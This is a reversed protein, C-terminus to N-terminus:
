AILSLVHWPVLLECSPCMGYAVLIGNNFGIMDDLDDNQNLLLDRYLQIVKTVLTLNDPLIHAQLNDMLLKALALLHYNLIM